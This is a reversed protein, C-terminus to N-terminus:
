TSKSCSIRLGNDTTQQCILGYTTYWKWPNAFAEFINYYIPQLMILICPPFKAFSRLLQFCLVCCPSTSSRPKRLRVRFPVRARRDSVSSSCRSGPSGCPCLAACSRQSSTRGTRTRHLRLLRASKRQTDSLM